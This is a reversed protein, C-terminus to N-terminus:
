NEKLKKAVAILNDKKQVGILKVVNNKKPNYIFTIPTINQNYGQMIHEHVKEPIIEFIKERTLKVTKLGPYVRDGQTQLAVANPVQALVKAQQVCAGCSSRSLMFIKLNKFVNKETNNFSINQTPRQKKAGMIKQTLKQKVQNYRDEIVGETVLEKHAKETLNWLKELLIAKAEMRILWLKANELTPNRAFMVYGADPVHGGEAHFEAYAPNLLKVWPKPIILNKPLEVLKAGKIVEVPTPKKYQQPTTNVVIALMIGYM